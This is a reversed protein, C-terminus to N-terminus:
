MMYASLDNVNAVEAMNGFNTGIEVDTKFTLQPEWGFYDALPLNEMIRQTEPIWYDLEDTKVYATLADHTMAFFRCSEPNNHTKKHEALALCSIDSLTGQVPSNISQREAQAEKAWNGCNILPLHRVRGLPSVVYGYKHAHAKNIEHYTAIEPYMDFFADKQKTAEELTLEVGYTNRAYEVFGAPSIGFILGFNGAKGGQRIVKIKKDGVEKLKLADAYLIGNLEAGTKIHLDIDKRYAKIMNTENAICAIIRLEGQSYDWNVMSYGKPVGYGARLRKAWITHKPTTQFAPDKFALRGTVTGSEKDANGYTGKYLIATPHFKKDERLHKLFGTIYTSETKSTASWEKLITVFAKAKPNDSFLKLHDFATSPEKTKNTLMKPKLKLGKPHTFMYEKIINGKSLAFGDGYKALLRKPMLAKAQLTLKELIAFIEIQMGQFYELDVYIGNQEMDLFAQGAPHLLKTYFTNMRKYTQIEKLMANGVRLTADTDGGAYVLLDDTPVLDMRSKDYISNFSDDYGGLTPAYIKCHSNLSNSRNEDLLSGMLTTDLTFNNDYIGWKVRIWMLDFKLNAGVIAVRADNLLWRIEHWLQHDETPQDDIGTFYVLDSVGEEISFSISVIHKSSDFPVLGVTELDLAVPVPKGTEEYQAIIISPLHSYDQVWNYDGVKPALTGTTVYRYILGLDTKLRIFSSYDFEKINMDYTIFCEAEDVKHVKERLSMITRNKPIGKESNQLVKLNYGGMCILIDGKNVSPVYKGSHLRMPLGKFQKIEANISQKTAKSWFILV